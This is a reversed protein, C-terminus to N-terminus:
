QTGRITFIIKKNKEDTCIAFAPENKKSEWRAYEIDISSIEVKMSVLAICMYFACVCVCVCVCMYIYIYIHIYLM